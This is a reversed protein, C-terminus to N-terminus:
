EDLGPIKVGLNSTGDECMKCQCTNPHPWNEDDEPKCPLASDIQWRDVDCDRYSGGTLTDAFDSLPLSVNVHNTNGVIITISIRDEDGRRSARSIKLLGHKM